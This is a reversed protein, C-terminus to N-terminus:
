RSYRPRPRPLPRRAPLPASSPRVWGPRHRSARAVRCRVARLWAGGIAVRCPGAGVVRDAAAGRESRIARIAPHDAGAAARAVCRQGHEAPYVVRIACLPSAAPEAAAVSPAPPSPQAASQQGALQKERLSKATQLARLANGSHGRAREVNAYDLWAQPDDPFQETTERAITGAQSYDGDAMNAYVASSRVQINSPNQELLGSTIKVAKAPQDRTAYLRALAMNLDPNDPATQLRPVLQDYAAAPDGAANLKDSVAVAAGNRVDTLRQSMMGTSPAVAQTITQADSPYGAGLLASGYLVRQESTATRSALATRILERAGPKDGQKVLENSYSSVREGTPDPQSALSLLRNREAAEGGLAKAETIDYRTQANTRISLMPVTRQKASLRDVLQVVTRDDQIENAFYIGAQLQADTPHASAVVPAMVARAGPEDQQRALARALELRIWPNNPDAAVASRYMGIQAVPDTM